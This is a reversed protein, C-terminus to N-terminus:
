PLTPGDPTWELRQIYMQRKTFDANWAHFCIHGEFVSNHGPGRLGPQSHLVRPPSGALSASEFPGDIRDGVLLDVGYSENQWSGGSYFLWYRGEHVVCAPGEVTYWAPWRRGYWDRNRAYLEWAGTARWVTEVPGAASSLDDALPVRAIGTGPYDGDLFDKAFFLWVRGNAPDVVPNADISFAEEPILARGQDSFPGQPQDSIAIRIQHGTGTAGGASYFLYFRDRWPLVEPAWFDCDRLELPPILAGGLPTWIALDRSYLIPFARERRPGPGGTGYAFYGDEVAIIQPDAFYGDWVPRFM